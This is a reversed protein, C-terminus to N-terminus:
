FLYRWGLRASWEQTFSGGSTREVDMYINHREGSRATYGIGYVWWSGGFNETISDGGSYASVEGDFERVKSVKAYFNNKETEYGVLLGIRGLISTYPSVTLRYNTGAYFDGGDQRQYSLQIQPEAYWGTRSKNFHLRQGVEVSWGFGGSNVGDRALGYITGGPSYVADFDNEVWQYKLITDVYFGNPKTFTAYLGIMKSDIDGTGDALYDMDGTSYGFMIGAYADGEWGIEVKKDYGIQVGGYDMDFGRIYNGSKSEFKGGHARFWLGNLHPTGRLDGLRQILTNTEAYGLLYAGYLSNVAVVAPPNVVPVDPGIMSTAELIWYTDSNSIGSGAIDNDYSALNFKWLGIPVYSSTLSFNAGNDAGITVLTVKDASTANSAAGGIDTVAISHSGEGAGTVELLDASHNEVDTKMYLIGGTSGGSLSGTTIKTGLASGSFDVASGDLTLSTLTSNDTVDWVSGSGKISLDLSATDPAVSTWGTLHSGDGLTLDISSYGEAAISGNISYVGEEGAINSWSHTAAVGAAYIAHSGLSSDASLTAGRMTILNDGGTAAVAHSSAGATEIEAGEIVLAGRIHAQAGNSDDGATYISGGYVKIAGGSTAYLGKGSNGSTIIESGRIDASGNSYAYVGYASTGGATIRTGDLSASGATVAQGYAKEGSTEVSGGDSVLRSGTGSVYFGYGNDGTTGVTVGALDASAGGNVRIGAAEAGSTSITGGSMELVSTDGNAGAGYSGTGTTTINNNILRLYSAGVTASLKTSLAGYSYVGETLITVGESYLSGGNAMLGYAYGNAAGTTHISGGSMTLAAGSFASAGIGNYGTTEIVVGSLTMQSGGSARAGDAATGSTRIIVNELSMASSTASWAGYSAGTATTLTGGTMKLSAASGYSHVGYSYTGSTVIDSDTIEMSSTKGSSVAYVYAGYANNGSANVSIGDVSIVSDQAVMAHSYQGFTTVTGGNMYLFGGKDAALGYASDGTTGTGRTTVDVGNLVATGGNSARVGYSPTQNGLGTHATEVSGGSIVITGGVVYAGVAGVGSTLVNVNNLYIDSGSSYAGYGMHGSTTISGNNMTIEGGSIARVGFGQFGSTTIPSDNITIQGDASACAGYASVGATHISGDNLTIEGSDAAQLGRGDNVTTSINNGNLELPNDSDSGVIRYGTSDSGAAFLEGCAVGCIFLFLTVFFLISKEIIIM